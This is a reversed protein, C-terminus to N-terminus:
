SRIMTEMVNVRDLVYRGATEVREAVLVMKDSAVFSYGWCTRPRWDLAM